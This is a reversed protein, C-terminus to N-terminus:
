ITIKKLIKKCITVIEIEEVMGERRELEEQAGIGRLDM